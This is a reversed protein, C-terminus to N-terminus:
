IVEDDMDTSEITSLAVDVVATKLKDEDINGNELLVEKPLDGRDILERVYTGLFKTAQSPEKFVYPAYIPYALTEKHFKIKIIRNWIILPQYLHCESDAVM